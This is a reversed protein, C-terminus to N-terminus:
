EDRSWHDFHASCHYTRQKQEKLIEYSVPVILEVDNRFLILTEKDSIAYMDKIHAPFIWMCEFLEPSMTPFTYIRNYPKIGIPAKNKYGFTLLAYRKRGSYDSGGELCAGEILERPKEKRYIEGKHLDIIVSQYIEHAIPLVGATNLGILGLTRRKNRKNVEKKM